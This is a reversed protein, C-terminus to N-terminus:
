TQLVKKLAAIFRENMERTGITVRIFTPLGFIDGTRVIVGQRLLAHFVEQADRQTDVFIFNAETPAYPLGLKDLEAYLYRKGERNMRRTREVQEDDDLSAIAGAQAISNVNFPERVRNLQAIIEEQAIGYGIRAGALAYIKSFTRLVIVNRGEEIYRLSRPYDAAEVYEYYAEDFVVLVHDPLGDMFADVEAQTNYTGTPNNPNCIFVAKTKANVAARMAALDHKLHQLPVARPVGDMLHVQSEYVVFSPTAFVVEDGANFYALAILHLIEDSGTGIAFNEPKYGFKKALAQKLDFCEADPYLWVEAAARQMAAIAKPSPGLVNENSAMKVVDTLGLERKVEDIPKGPRYPKLRTINPRIM